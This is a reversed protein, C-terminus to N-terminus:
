FGFRLGLSVVPYYKLYSRSEIDAQIDAVEQAVNQDFVIKEAGTLNPSGTLSVQPYGSFALGVDFLLSVRGRGSFGLGAYPAYSADYAVRGTLSGVQDPQYIQGGITIPGTLRATVDGENSNWVMGGSVHFASGFPHLDVIATGSQLKPSLDYDIGQIVANRTFTLYQAGARLGLYRSPRVSLEGGIGLTSARLGIGLQGTAPAALLGALFGAIIL